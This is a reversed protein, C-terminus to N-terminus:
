QSASILALPVTKISNFNGSRTVGLALRQGKQLMTHAQCTAESNAEIVQLCSFRCPFTVVATYSMISYTPTFLLNLCKLIYSHVVVQSFCNSM